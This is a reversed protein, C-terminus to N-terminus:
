AHRDRRICYKRKVYEDTDIRVTSSHGFWIWAHNFILRQPLISNPRKTRVLVTLSKSNLGIESIRRKNM